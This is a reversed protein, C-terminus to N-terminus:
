LRSVVFNVIVFVSLSIVLGIISYLITNKASNIQNSDGNSLTYKLGGIIIFILSLAGAIRWAWTLIMELTSQDASVAPLNVTNKDLITQAMSLLRNFMM